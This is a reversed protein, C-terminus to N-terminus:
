SKENIREKEQKTKAKQLLVAKLCVAETFFGSKFQIPDGLTERCEMYKPYFDLRIIM